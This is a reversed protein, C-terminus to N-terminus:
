FLRHLVFLAIIDINRSHFLFVAKATEDEQMM